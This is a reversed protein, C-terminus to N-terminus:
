LLFSFKQYYHDMKRLLPKPSFPILDHKSLKDITNRLHYLLEITEKSPQETVISTYKLQNSLHHITWEPTNNIIEQNKDQDEKVVLRRKNNIKSHSDRYHNLHYNMKEKYIEDSNIEMNETIEQSDNKPTLTNCYIETYDLYRLLYELFSTENSIIWDLLIEKDYSINHMLAEFLKMPSSFELITAIVPCRKDNIIM